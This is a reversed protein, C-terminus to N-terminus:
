KRKGKTKPEAAKKFLFGLHKFLAIAHDRKSARVVLTIQLGFDVTSTDQATEAFVYHDKFGLNLNGNKDVNQLDIGRFDRVRPYVVRAVKDIFDYMRQGRLTATIGVVQGERLKFGAISKKASRPAPKQGCIAALEKSVEPLIKDNFNAQQSARGLGVNVVVKLVRPVSHINSIGLEKELEGTIKKEYQQKLTQTMGKSKFEQSVNRVSEQSPIM